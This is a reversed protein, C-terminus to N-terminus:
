SGIVDVKEYEFRNRWRRPLVCRGGWRQQMYVIIALLLIGLPILIDSTVSYFDWEPNAYLYMDTFAPIFRFKRCLDYIHPLSRVLAMGFYFPKSLPAQEKAGWLINGVVQPFLHFDLLLGGYAKIDWWLGGQNNRWLFEREYPRFGLLAHSLVAVLGGLIYLPLITYLVRREQVAAAGLDGAARSKVRSKWVLQLLRLQLLMAAMTTLRVVVENVEPWGAGREIVQYDNRKKQFLAEFNLVLPIMHALSLLLLMSTSIYPLTEPYRKSYVLQVLIFVVTLSLMVVSIVIELDVRWVAAAAQLRVTGSFTETKFFLPDAPVRLSKVTGKLVEQSDVAPLQVSFFVQCDKEGDLQELQQGKIKKMDVPQCGILCLKGTEPNYIGEGAMNSDRGPLQGIAYYMSYSVNMIGRESLGTVNASTVHLQGYTRFQDGFTFLNLNVFSNAGNQSKPGDKVGHFELDRWDVGTPYTSGSSSSKKTDMACLTKATEVKTYVYEPQNTVSTFRTVQLGTSLQRFTIQKFYSADTEKRLSRIHGVVLSRQTVTFTLPFQM